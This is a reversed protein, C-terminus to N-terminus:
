GPARSERPVGERRESGRFYRFTGQGLALVQGGEDVVEGSTTAILQEVDELRGIAKIVGSTAPALFSTTLSLTVCSRVHGRVSCWTAAHGFAADLMAAYVAGHVIGLSNLHRQGLVLEIEAYNERWVV